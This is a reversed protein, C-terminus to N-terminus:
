YTWIHMYPQFETQTCIVLKTCFYFFLFFFVLSFDFPVSGKVWYCMIMMGHGHSFICKYDKARTPAAPAEVTKKKEEWKLKLVRWSNGIWQAFVITASSGFRWVYRKLSLHLFRFVPVCRWGLFRTLVHLACGFPLRSETSCELRPFM